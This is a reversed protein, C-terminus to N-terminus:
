FTYKIVYWIDPFVLITGYEFMQIICIINTANTQLNSITSYWCFHGYMLIIFTTFNFLEM